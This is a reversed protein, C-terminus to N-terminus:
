TSRLSQDRDYVLVESDPRLAWDCDLESRRPLQGFVRLGPTPHLYDVETTAWQDEGSTLWVPMAAIISATPDVAEPVPAALLSTTSASVSTTVGAPPPSATGATVHSPMM